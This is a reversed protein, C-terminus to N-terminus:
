RVMGMIRMVIEGLKEEMERTQADQKRLMQLAAYHAMYERFDEPSVLTQLLRSVSEWHWRESDTESIVESGVCDALLRAARDISESRTEASM